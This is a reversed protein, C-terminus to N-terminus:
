QGEMSWTNCDRAYGSLYPHFPLSIFTVISIIALMGQPKGFIGRKVAPHKVVILGNITVFSLPKSLNLM